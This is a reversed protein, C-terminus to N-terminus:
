SLSIVYSIEGGKNLETIKIISTLDFGAIGGISNDLGAGQTSYAVFSAVVSLEKSILEKIFNNFSSIGEKASNQANSLLESYQSFIDLKSFDTNIIKGLFNNIEIDGSISRFLGTQVYLQNTVVAPALV